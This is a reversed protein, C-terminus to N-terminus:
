KYFVIDGYQNVLGSTNKFGGTCGFMEFVSNNSLLGASQSFASSSVILVKARLMLLFSEYTGMRNVIQVNPYSAKLSKFDISTTIYSGSENPNLYPQQWLIKQSNSIPTYYKEKDPADTLIIVKPNNMEFKEIILNINNLINIYVKDEIWRPNEKTVNGRRIHIVISNDCDTINNFDTASSLFDSEKAFGQGLPVGAGVKDCLIYEENNSFNINEWPNNILSLLNNILDKKQEENQIQDSEHILFNEIPTDEFVLNNYKAYSMAYIKRWIQAGIGDNITYEKVKTKKM